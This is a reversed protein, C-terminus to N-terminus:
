SSALNKLAFKLMEEASTKDNAQYGDLASKAELPSYGLNLLAERVQTYLAKFDKEGSSDVSVIELEPLALKEKLELVLRQATKKGIGPIAALLDVDELLIAKKLSNVSFASLLALAVKPGIKTVSLLKEFLEKDAQSIFGFLQMTDERVYLYTFLSVEEGKAPLKFLASTPLSLIYGVGGVDLIIQESTKELIKGRLYGIM